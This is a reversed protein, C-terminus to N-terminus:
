GERVCLSDGLRNLADRGYKEALDLIEKISPHEFVTLDVFHLRIFDFTKEAVGDNISTVIDFFLERQDQEDYHDLYIDDIFQGDSDFFVVRNETEDLCASCLCNKALYYM